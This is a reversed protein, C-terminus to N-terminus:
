ITTYITKEKIQQSVVNGEIWDPPTRNSWRHLSTKGKNYYNRYNIVPDDSVVYEAAMCSPMTTMGSRKINNPLSLLHTAINRITSHQKGYRHTYEDGLALLHEYLWNYNANTERAWVASPHNAHTSKYMVSERSDPLAFRKIKRGNATLETREVGDLIRHATSLLQATEIIMKVVHRDVLSEAAIKSNKNV